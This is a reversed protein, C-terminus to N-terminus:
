FGIQSTEVQLSSAKECSIQPKLKQAIPNKVHTVSL